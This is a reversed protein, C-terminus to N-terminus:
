MVVARLNFKVLCITVQALGVINCEEVVSKKEEEGKTIEPIHSNRIGHFSMLFGVM